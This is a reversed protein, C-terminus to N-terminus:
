NEIFELLHMGAEKKHEVNKEREEDESSSSSSSSESSPKRAKYKPPKLQKKETEVEEKIQANDKLIEKIEEERNEQSSGFEVVRLGLEKISLKLDEVDSIIENIATEIVKRSENAQVLNMTSFTTIANNKEMEDETDEKLEKELTKVKKMIIRTNEPIETLNREIGEQISILPQVVEMHCDTMIRKITMLNESNTVRFEERAEQIKIGQQQTEINITNNSAQHIENM